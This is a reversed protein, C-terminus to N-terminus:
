LIKLKLLQTIWRQKNKIEELDKNITNIAQMKQMRNEINPFMKVIMVRFEKEPLKGIEEENIQDQTNRTWYLICICICYQVENTCYKEVKENKLKNHKFDGKRLIWPLIREEKQNRGKTPLTQAITQTHKMNPIVQAQM